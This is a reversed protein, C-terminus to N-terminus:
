KDGCGAFFVDRVELASGGNSASAIEYGEHELRESLLALVKRDDNVILVRSREQPINNM